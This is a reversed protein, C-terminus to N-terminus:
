PLEARIQKPVDVDCSRKELGSRVLADITFTNAVSEALTVVPQSRGRIVAAFNELQLRYSDTRLVQLTDVLPSPWPASQRVTITADESITWATPLTIIGRTGSVQLEQSLCARKSSEVISVRGNDFEVVGHMRVITGYVESLEVRCYVRLPVGGAFHRCANVCYCALDYPVGGGCEKRQRWNRDASTAPETEPDLVSFCARVSDVPGIEDAALLKQIKRIAPHHRYMFGEMLFARAGRVKEWIDMAEAGTLALAKECLINRVGLAICREIQERHQSPWTALPVGDVSERGLMEAYDTYYSRCGYLAAWQRAKDENRSCCTVFRVKRSDRAARAHAHSIDGCGILAIAVTDEAM